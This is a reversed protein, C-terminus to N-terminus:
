SVLEWLERTDAELPLHAESRRPRGRSRRRHYPQGDWFIVGGWVGWEHRDRLAVELCQVKVSCGACIRQAEALEAPKESFFLEHSGEESCRGHIQLQQLQMNM